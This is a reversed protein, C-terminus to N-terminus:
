KLGYQSKSAVKGDSFSITCNAGLSDGSWSYIESKVGAIETESVSSGDGGFIEKVEDYTMGTKVKDYMESTIALNASDSVGYQSKSTVKDNQFIISAKGFGDSSWMYLKTTVGAVESESQNEGDSGFIEKVQDYSMGNEIKKYQEATIGKADTPEDTSKSTPQTSEGASSSSNSQSPANSEIASTQTQKQPETTTQTEGCAVLSLAMVTALVLYLAKKM